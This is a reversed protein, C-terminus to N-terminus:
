LFLAIAQVGPLTNKPQPLKARAAFTFSEAIERMGSVMEVGNASISLFCRVCLPVYHEDDPIDQSTEAEGVYNCVVCTMSDGENLIM